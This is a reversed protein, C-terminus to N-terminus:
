ARGEEAAGGQAPYVRARTRAASASGAARSRSTPTTACRVATPRFRTRRRLLFLSKLSARPISVYFLRTGDKLRIKDGKVLLPVVVDTGLKRISRSQRAETMEFFHGERSIRFWVAPFDQRFQDSSTPEPFVSRPLPVGHCAARHLHWRVVSDVGKDCEPCAYTGDPEADPVVPAEESSAALTAAPPAVYTAAKFQRPVKSASRHARGSSSEEEKKSPGEMPDDGRTRPRPLRTPAWSPTSARWSARMKALRRVGPLRPALLPRVRRSWISRRRISSSKPTSWSRATSLVREPPSRERSSAAEMYGEMIFKLKDTTKDVLEGVTFGPNAAAAETMEEGMDVDAASREMPAAVAAGSREEAKAVAPATTDPLESDSSSEETDAEDGEAGEAPAAPTGADASGTAAASTGMAAAAAEVAEARLDQILTLRRDSGIEALVETYEGRQNDAALIRFIAGTPVTDALLVGNAGSFLRVGSRRLVELNCQVVANSGRRFGRAESWQTPMPGVVFHNALRGGPGGGPLLGQAVIAEVVHVDIGHYIYKGHSRQLDAVASEDLPAAM